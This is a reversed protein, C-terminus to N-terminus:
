RPGAFLEHLVGENRGTHDAKGFDAILSLEKEKHQCRSVADGDGKTSAAVRTAM